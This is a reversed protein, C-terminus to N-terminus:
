QQTEEINNKCHNKQGTIKEFLWDVATEAWAPGVRGLRSSITEDESNGWTASVLQDFGVAIHLSRTPSFLIATLQWLLAMIAALICVLWVPFLILRSTM